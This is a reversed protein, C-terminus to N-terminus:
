KDHLLSRGENEKPYRIGHLDCITPCIDILKVEPIKKPEIDKSYIIAFGKMKDHYSDYGHMANYKEFKHFYDPYILIGPNAWWILDGYRRNPVPIRYKNAINNTIIFGKNLLESSNLIQKIIKEARDKFFWFRAITSDLFLLYDKGHRLGQKNAHSNIIKQVDVIESTDMMGHDGVLVFTVKDYYKEFRKQILSIKHDMEATIDHRKKSESGYKHCLEDSNSFQLLYIDAEKETRKLTEELATEDQGNIVPFMLYEFKINESHMIDFISEVGFANPEYIPKVDETVGILHLVEFPIWATPAHSAYKKTLPYIIRHRLVSSILKYDDLLKLFYRFPKIFRFPSNAPDYSFMTFNGTKDAFTGTFMASRQTFGASSILKEAHIGNESMNYITPTDVENIYDWRFADLIIYVITNKM